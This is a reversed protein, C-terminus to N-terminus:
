ASAVSPPGLQSRLSYVEVLSEGRMGDSIACGAGTQKGEIDIADSVKKWGPWMVMVPEKM